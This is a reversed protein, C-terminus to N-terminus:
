MNRWMFSPHHKVQVSFYGSDDMNTSQQKFGSASNTIRKEEEDLESAFKALDVATFYAGLVGM